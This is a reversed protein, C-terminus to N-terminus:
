AERGYLFQTHCAGEQSVMCPGVPNQPTCDKAFRPCEGPSILGQLVQGCKCGALDEVDPIDVPYMHLVDYDQFEPRLELGSRPILGMGRWLSDAPQFYKKLYRMAVPNGDPRVVRTYQNEVKAEKENLQQVLMLIAALIDEAEFGAVVCPINYHEVLPQYYNVGTVATVHGPCLFGSIYQGGDLLAQMAPTILKHAMLLYVNRLSLELLQEMLLATGPATTEFGVALFLVPQSPNTQALRIVDLASTVVEVKGGETRTGLLSGLRGPVRLMDGYSALTFGHRLYTVAQDIVPNPTVCVPCGPGSALDLHDKLLERIGSRFIAVTHTGCVEMFRPRYGLRDCQRKIADVLKRCIKASQSNIM